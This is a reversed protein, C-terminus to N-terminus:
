NLSCTKGGDIQQAEGNREVWVPQASPNHVISGDASWRLTGFAKLYSHVEMQTAYWIDDRGGIRKGFEEMLEWNNGNNFEYSHGWVYFLAPGCYTPITLFQETRELLRDNHHCTAPWRLPDSPLSFGGTSVVTRSYEMGCAELIAVVRDNYTGYPYSMGKVPYGALEELRKRDEMIESVIAEGGILPLHPHNVTHSSIEHGQFLTPVEEATINGPLGLRGSNLHFTGKLGYRNFCDVLRRDADRGDDYSLVLAKRFGNPFLISAAATM